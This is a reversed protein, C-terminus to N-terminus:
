PFGAPKDRELPSPGCQVVVHAIPRLDSLTPTPFRTIDTVYRGTLHQFLLIVRESSSPSREALAITPKLMNSGKLRTRPRGSGTMHFEPTRRITSPRHCLAQDHDAVGCYRVSLRLVGCFTSHVSSIVSYNDMLQDLCVDLPLFATGYQM